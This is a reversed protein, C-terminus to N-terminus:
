DRNETYEVREKETYIHTCFYIYIRKSYAVQYFRERLYTHIYTPTHTYAQEMPKLM